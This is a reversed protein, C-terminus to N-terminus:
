KTERIGEVDSSTLLIDDVYVALLVCESTTRKYLVSHDISCRKFGGAMSITPVTKPWLNGEETQM